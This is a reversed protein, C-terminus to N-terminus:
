QISVFWVCIDAASKQFDGQSNEPLFGDPSPKHNTSFQFFSRIQEFCRHFFITTLYLDLHNLSAQRAAQSDATAKFSFCLNISKLSISHGLFPKCWNACCNWNWTLERLFLLVRDLLKFRLNNMAFYDNVSKTMFIASLRHTWIILCYLAISSINIVTWSKRTSPETARFEM